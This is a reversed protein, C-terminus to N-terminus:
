DVKLGFCNFKFRNRNSRFGGRFPVYIRRFTHQQQIENEISKHTCFYPLKEITGFKNEFPFFTEGRGM